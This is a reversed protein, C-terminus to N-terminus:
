TSGGICRKDAEQKIAHVLNTRRVLISCAALKVHAVSVRRGAAIEIVRQNDNTKKDTPSPVFSSYNWTSAM